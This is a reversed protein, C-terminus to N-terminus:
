NDIEELTPAYVGIKQITISAAKMAFNISKKMDDTRLHEFVLASLFTDGAGCVDHVEIKPPFFVISSEPEPQYWIVGSDGSTVIMNDPKSTLRSYELSNIKFMINNFQKLDTKKTDAYIPGDFNDAIFRINEYSLFGKDYDSIVVADYKRLDPLIHVSFKEQSIREDVRLVQQNSRTDIYRRKNELFETIIDVELGLAKMNEHVNSAMGNKVVQYIHDLIPIPAEPSIRNVQGYHYFDYCSDGILLIRFQIPQRNM